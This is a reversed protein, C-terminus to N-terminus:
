KGFLEKLYKKYVKIQGLFHRMIPTNCTGAMNEMCEIYKFDATIMDVQHETMIVSSIM